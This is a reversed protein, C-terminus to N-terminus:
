AGAAIEEELMVFFAARARRERWPTHGCRELLRFRADPLWTALPERVGAAPSPDSDGHIAVVPCTVAEIATRLRGDRRMAAAEPWVSAYIRAQTEPDFDTASVGPPEPLPDFADTKASLAALQEFAADKGPGNADLMAIAGDFEARETPSLRALRNTHMTRAFREEFVGSSVLIVKRVLEPHAATLLLSLWAGWSHGVLTVPLAAHSRLAAALEEVQGAVSLAMQLPELVGHSASLEAAVQAM